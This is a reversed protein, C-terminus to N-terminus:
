LAPDAFLLVVDEDDGSPQGESLGSGGVQYAVGGARGIVPRVHNMAYFLPLISQLLALAVRWCAPQWAGGLPSSRPEELCVVCPPPPQFVPKNYPKCIIIRSNQTALVPSRESHTHTNIAPKVQARQNNLACLSHAAEGLGLTRDTQLPCPSATYVM